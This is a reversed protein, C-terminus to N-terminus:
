NPWQIVVLIQCMTPLITGSMSFTSMNNATNYRVYKYFNWVWGNMWTGLLIPGHGRVWLFVCVYVCLYAGLAPTWSTTWVLIFYERYWSQYESSMTLKKVDFSGCERLKSACEKVFMFVIPGSKACGHIGHFLLFHKCSINWCGERWRGVVTKILKQIVGLIAQQSRNVVRLVIHKRKFFCRSVFPRHRVIQYTWM